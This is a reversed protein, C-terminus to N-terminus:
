KLSIKNHAHMNSINVTFQVNRMSFHGEWKRIIGITKFSAKKFYCDPQGLMRKITNLIYLNKWGREVKRNKYTYKM